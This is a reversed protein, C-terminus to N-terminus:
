SKFSDAKEKNKKFFIEKILILIAGVSIMVDALNLVTFYPVDIYDIVFGHRVRDALNSCAGFIILSLFIINFFNNERIADILFKILVFFIGSTAIIIVTMPIAINFAIGFNKSLHWDFIFDWSLGPNQLFIYKFFRDLFFLIFSFLIVVPLGIKM